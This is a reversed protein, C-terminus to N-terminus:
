ALLAQAPVDAFFRDMATLADPALAVFVRRRDRPDPTRRIMGKRELVGIWRLATTAPVAAGICLSSVSLRRQGLEAAYLELLIDWAPEAFLTADFYRERKRRLALVTRVYAETVPQEFPRADPEAVIEDVLRLLNNLRDRIDQAHSVVDGGSRAFPAFHKVDLGGSETRVDDDSM